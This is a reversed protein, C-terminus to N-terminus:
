SWEQGAPLEQERIPQEVDHRAVRADTEPPARSTEVIGDQM